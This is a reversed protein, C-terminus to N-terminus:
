VGLSKEEMNKPFNMGFLVSRKMNGITKQQFCRVSEMLFWVVRELKQKGFLEKVVMLGKDKSYDKVANLLQKGIGQGQREPLVAMENIYIEEKNGSIKRLAFICGLVEKNEEYVFGVFRRQEFFDQLYETANETTWDIGWYEMPFAKTYISGCQTLDSNKMIRIMSEDGDM